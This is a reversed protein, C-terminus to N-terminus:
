FYSTKWLDITLFIRLRVYCRHYTCKKQSLANCITLLHQFTTMNQRVYNNFSGKIKNLLNWLIIHNFEDKTIKMRIYINELVELTNLWKTGKRTCIPPICVGTWISVWGNRCWEAHSLWRRAYYNISFIKAKPTKTSKRSAKTVMPCYACHEIFTSKWFSYLM